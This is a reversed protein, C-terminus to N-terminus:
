CGRVLSCKRHDLGTAMSFKGKTVCKYPLSARESAGPVSSGGKPSCIQGSFSLQCSRSPFTEEYCNGLGPLWSHNLARDQTVGISALLRSSM